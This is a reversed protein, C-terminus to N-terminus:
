GRIRRPDNGPAITDKQRVAGDEGHVVLEGGGAAQLWARGHNIADAQRVTNFITIGDAKVSWNTGNPVIHAAHAV